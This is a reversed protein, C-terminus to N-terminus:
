ITNEENRKGGLQYRKRMHNLVYPSVEEGLNYSLIKSALYMGFKSFLLKLEDEGVIQLLKYSKSYAVDRPKRNAPYVHKKRMSKVELIPCL